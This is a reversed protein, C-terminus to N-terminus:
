IRDLAPTLDRLLDAGALALQLGRGARHFLERGFWAELKLVQKSVAGATMGLEIAAGSVSGERAVMEFVRLAALPPLRRM